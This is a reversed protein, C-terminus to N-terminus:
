ARILSSGGGRPYGMYVKTYKQIGMYTFISYTYDNRNFPPNLWIVNRHRNRKQAPPRQPPRFELKYTYGSKRLAEQYLPAAENFVDEDSSIDSLRRNISEPINNAEITIKLENQVFIKCIDKKVREIEKPTQRTLLFELTLPLVKEM